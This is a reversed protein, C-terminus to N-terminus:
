TKAGTLFWKLTSLYIRRREGYKRPDVACAASWLIARALMGFFLLTKASLAVEWRCHKGYFKCESKQLEVFMREAALKTSQGGYHVIEAAPYFYVKWGKQKAMWCWDVEESYMYYREDFLGIDDIADRRAMMFAGMVVDVERTADYNFYSMYPRGFFRHQPFLRYLFSMKLFLDLLSPFNKCSLQLSGDANVIRCGVIAADRTREMFSLTKPVADDVILTDPNLLLVYSGTAERLAQNMAKAFGVNRRNEILKVQPFRERIMPVSGDESNNDVVIIEPKAGSAKYISDLCDRLLNKVKYNVICISLEAMRQEERREPMM